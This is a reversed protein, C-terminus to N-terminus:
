DLSDLTSIHSKVRPLLKSQIQDRCAPLLFHKELADEYDREGHKEGQKLAAVASDDGFLNAAGQVATAFTGWAGSEDDPIGGMATISEQLDRVSAQHEDKIRRLTPSESEHGFKEIAQEYTEVASLEGRLLSNCEKICDQNIDSTPNMTNNTPNSTLPHPPKQKPNIILSDDTKNRDSHWIKLPKNLSENQTLQM